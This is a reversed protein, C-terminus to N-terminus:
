NVAGSVMSPNSYIWTLGNAGQYSMNVVQCQDQDINTRTMAQQGIAGLWSRTWLQGSFIQIWEPWKEPFSCIYESNIM